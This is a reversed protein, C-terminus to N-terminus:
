LNKLDSLLIMVENRSLSPQRELTEAFNRAVNMVGRHSFVRDLYNYNKVFIAEIEDRDLSCTESGERSIVSLLLDRMDRDIDEGRNVKARCMVNSIVMASTMEFQKVIHNWVSKASLRPNGTFYYEPTFEISEYFENDDDSSDLCVSSIYEEGDYIYLSIAMGALGFSKDKRDSYKITTKM